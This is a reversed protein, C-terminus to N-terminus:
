GATSGVAAAPNDDYVLVASATATSWTLAGGPFLNDDIELFYIKFNPTGAMSGSATVRRFFVSTITSGPMIGGLQAVPYITAYRNTANAGAVSYMPGYLNSSLISCTGIQWQPTQANVNCLSVLALTLLLLIKRM